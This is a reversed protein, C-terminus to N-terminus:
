VKIDIHTLTPPKQPGGEDESSHSSKEKKRYDEESYSRSNSGQDAKVEDPGASSTKKEIENVDERLKRLADLAEIQTRIQQRNQEAQVAVQMRALADGQTSIYNGDLGRVIREIEGLLVWKLKVM